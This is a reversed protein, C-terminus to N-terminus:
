HVGKGQAWELFLASLEKKIVGWVLEYDIGFYQHAIRDRMKAM